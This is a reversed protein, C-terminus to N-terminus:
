RVSSVNKPETTAVKSGFVAMEVRSPVPAVRPSPCFDVGVARSTSPRIALDSESFRFRAMQFPTRLPSPSVVISRKSPKSVMVCFSTVAPVM